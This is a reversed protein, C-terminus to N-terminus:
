EQNLIVKKLIKDGIYALVPKDREYCYFVSEKLYAFAWYQDGEGDWNDIVYLAHTPEM